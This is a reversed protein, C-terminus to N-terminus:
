KWQVGSSSRIEQALAEALERRVYRTIRVESGHSRACVYATGKPNNNTTENVTGVTQIDAFPLQKGKFKLGVNPLVTVTAPRINIWRIALAWVVVALVNWIILVSADETPKNGLKMALPATVACSLPFGIIMLLMGAASGAHAGIRESKFKLDISGDSNVIREYPKKFSSEM